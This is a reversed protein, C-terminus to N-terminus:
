EVAAKLEAYFAYKVDDDVDLTSACMAIITINVLRSFLLASFAIAAGHWSTNASTENHYSHITADQQPVVIPHLQIGFFPGGVPM